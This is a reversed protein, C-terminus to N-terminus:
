ILLSLFGAPVPELIFKDSALGYQRHSLEKFILSGIIFNGLFLFDACSL